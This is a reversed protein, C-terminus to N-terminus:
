GVHMKRCEHASWLADSFAHNPLRYVYLTIWLIPSVTDTKLGMASKKKKYNLLGKFLSQTDLDM